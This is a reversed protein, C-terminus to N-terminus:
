NRNEYDLPEISRYYQYMLFLSLGTLIHWIAHGQLPSDPACLIKKVDLVWITYAIGMSIFAFIALLVNSKNGRLFRIIGITLVMLGILSLMALTSDIKWKYLYMLYDAAIGLLVFLVLAPKISWNKKQNFLLVFLYFFGITVISIMAAYTGAMDWRQMVKSLSAHYLFSGIGLYIFSLGAFISLTPQQQVLNTKETKNRIDKGAFFLCVLGFWVFGYNSWSNMPERLFAEMRNRECYEEFLGAPGLELFGWYNQPGVLYNLIATPIIFLVILTVTAATYPSTSKKTTLLFQKLITYSIYKIFM